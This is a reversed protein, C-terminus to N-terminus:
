CGTTPASSPSPTTSTASTRRCCPRWGTSGEATGPAPQKENDRVLGQTGRGLSTTSRLLRGSRSAGTRWARHAVRQRRRGAKGLEENRASLTGTVKSTSKFLSALEDDRSSITRSLRSLGDVLGRVSEPTNKFVASMTALSKELRTPTSRPSRPPCTPSPRRSTTRRPPTTSRSRGTWARRRGAPRRLPVEQRAADQDEGRGDDGQRSQRGQGPLRRAGQQRRSGISTVKGVKVGAVRVEDGARLGATEAIYAEHKEGGGVVPLDDAYFTAFFVGVLAAIGILAIIVRNREAFATPYRRARGAM